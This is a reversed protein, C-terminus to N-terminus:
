KLLEKNQYINGIIEFSLDALYMPYNRKINIDTLFYAGNDWEVKAIGTLIKSLHYYKYRIIDGKYCEKENKDKLGTFQLLISFESNDYPLQVINSLSMDESATIIGSVFDIDLVFFMKESQKDWVKYKTKRM